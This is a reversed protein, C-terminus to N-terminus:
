MATTYGERMSDPFFRNMLFGALSGGAMMQVLLGRWVAEKWTLLSCKTPTRLVRTLAVVMWTVPSLTSASSMSVRCSYLPYVCFFLGVSLPFRNLRCLVPLVQTAVVFLATVIADQLSDMLGGWLPLSSVDSNLISDCHDSSSSINESVPFLTKLPSTHFVFSLLTWVVQTTLVHTVMAVGVHQLSLRKMRWECVTRALHPFSPPTSVTQTRTATTTTTTTTVIPCYHYQQFSQYDMWLWVMWTPALAVGPAQHHAVKSPLTWLIGPAIWSLLWSTRSSPKTRSEALQHLLQSLLGTWLAWRAVQIAEKHAYQRWHFLRPTYSVSRNGTAVEPFLQLRGHHPNYHHNNNTNIHNNNNNNNSINHITNTSISSSSKHHTHYHQQHHDPPSSPPSGFIVTAAPQVNSLSSTRFHHHGAGGGAGTTGTNPM